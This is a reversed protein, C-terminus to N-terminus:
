KKYMSMWIRFWNIILLCYIKPGLDPDILHLDRWKIRSSNLLGAMVLTAFMVGIGLYLYVALIAIQIANGLEEAV